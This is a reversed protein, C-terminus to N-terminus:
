RPRYRYWLLTCELALLTAFHCSRLRSGSSRLRECWRPSQGAQRDKELRFHRQSFKRNEEKWFDKQHYEVESPEVVPNEEEERDSELVTCQRVARSIARPRGQAPSRRRAATRTRQRGYWSGRGRSPGPESIIHVTLPRCVFIFQVALVPTIDPFNCNLPQAALYCSWVWYGSPRLRAVWCLSNVVDVCKELRYHPRSYKQNEEKWFDRQRYQTQASELVATDKTDVSTSNVRSPVVGGILM